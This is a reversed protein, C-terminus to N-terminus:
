LNLGACAGFEKMKMCNEAVFTVVGVKCAARDRLDLFIRSGGSCNCEGKNGSADNNATRVNVQSIHIRMM